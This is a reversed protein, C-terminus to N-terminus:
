RLRRTLGGRIASRGEAADVVKKEDSMESHLDLLGPMVRLMVLKEDGGSRLRLSPDANKVRV